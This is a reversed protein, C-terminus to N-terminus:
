YDHDKLVAGSAPTVTMVLGAKGGNKLPHMLVTVKDGPLFSKMTWGKRILINPTSCEVSWQSVVGAADSVMMEISAHPNRWMFEKITGALTMTKTNDFMAASHHAEAGTATMLTLAAALLKLSTKM